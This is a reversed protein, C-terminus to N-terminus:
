DYGRESKDACHDCQYGLEVDAPTLKNPADCTPCPQDRPNDHSAARLASGSQMFDIGDEDEYDYYDEQEDEDEDDGYVHRQYLAGLDRGYEDESLTGEPICNPVMKNGKKKMGAQKYGDWCKEDLQEEDMVSESKNGWNKAGKKRCQVLAGSAYASWKNYRSKVKRYCADKKENIMSEHYMPGGCEPCKEETMDQEKINFIKKAKDNLNNPRILKAPITKAQSQIAKHIRHNGDLIWDIQGQEDVMILIPFQNSVTVQNVREIEEPNGEWHLLKSKLNDNIPLNIQKIHKTLELIDQLTITDTDNSWSTEAGGETVGGNKVCNPYKKGFMTKMGDKHYGEWCAEELNHTHDGHTQCMGCDECVMEMEISENHKKKGACHAKQSFGKPHSCNISKKYKASWKEDLTTDDKEFGKNPIWGAIPKCKCKGIACSCNTMGCQMCREEKGEEMGENSKKKKTNVNIAKGTGNANPDKRRKRAAASARAKKGISHAKSQPLCKPKGESGKERACDGRIKGDPGFRVWKEKFWKHLDETIDEGTLAQLLARAVVRDKEKEDEPLQAYNINMLKGRQELKSELKGSAKLQETDDFQNPNKVFERATVNWGKHIADSIQEIDTVGQDIMKKAYEASKLNAQWGFTNGPNSRGYHYADNLAESSITALQEISLPASDETVPVGTVGDHFKDYEKSDKGYGHRWAMSRLEELTKGAFRQKNEEDTAYRIKEKSKIVSSPMGAESINSWSSFAKFPSSENDSYSESIIKANNALDILKRMDESKSM